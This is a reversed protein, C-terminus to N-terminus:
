LDIDLLFYTTDFASLYITDFLKTEENNRYFFATLRINENGWGRRIITDEFDAYWINREGGGWNIWLEDGIQPNVLNRVHLQLYAHPALELNINQRQGSELPAYCYNFPPWHQPLSQAVRVRYMSYYNNPFEQATFTHNYYGNADTYFEEVCDYGLGSRVDICMKLATDGPYNTTGKTYVHGYVTTTGNFEKKCASLILTLVFGYVTLTAVNRMEIRKLNDV